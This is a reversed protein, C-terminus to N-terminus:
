LQHVVPSNKSLYATFSNLSNLTEMPVVEFDIELQFEKEIQVLLKIFTLSNMGLKSLDGGLSNLFETNYNEPNVNTIIDFLANEVKNITKM